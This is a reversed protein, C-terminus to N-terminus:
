CAKRIVTRWGPFDADADDFSRLERKRSFRLTEALRSAGRNRLRIALGRRFAIGKRLESSEFISLNKFRAYIRTQAVRSRGSKRNRNINEPSGLLKEQIVLVFHKTM